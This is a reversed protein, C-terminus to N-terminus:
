RAGSRVYTDLTARLFLPTRGDYGDPEVAGSSKLDYVRKTTLGLYEAAARPTLYGGSSSEPKRAELRELLRDELRDTLEDLAADDLARVLATALGDGM